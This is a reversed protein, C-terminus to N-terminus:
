STLFYGAYQSVLLLNMAANVLAHWRDRDQELDTHGQRVGQLDTKINNEYKHWTEM